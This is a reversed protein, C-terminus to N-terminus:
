KGLPKYEVRGKFGERLDLGSNKVTMKVQYYSPLDPDSNAPTWDVSTVTAPFSREPLAYPFFDVREGPSLQVVDREYVLSYILMTDMTGIQAIITGEPLRSNNRLQPHLSLVTGSVPTKLRVIDPIKGSEFTDDGLLEKMHNLTKDAFNRAYTARKELILLYARTLKLDAQLRDLPYESSLKQATLRLLEQENKEMANINRKETEQNRRLDDLEYFLMERGLQIAKNEDLIYQAVVDGKKVVQGPTIKIDTFIGSFPMIVPRNLSCFVKGEFVIQSASKNGKDQNGDTAHAISSVFIFCIIVVCTFTISRNM